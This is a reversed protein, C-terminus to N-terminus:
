ECIGSSFSGKADIWVEVRRDVRREHENDADAELLLPTHAGFSCVDVKHHGVVEEKALFDRVDKARNMALKRNFASDGGASDSFGILVIDKGRYEPHHNLLYDLQKKHIHGEHDMNHKGTEFHFNIPTKVLQKMVNYYKDDLDHEKLISRRERVEENMETNTVINMAILKTTRSIWEQTSEKDLFTRFEDTLFKRFDSSLQASNPRTYIYLEDYLDYEESFIKSATPYVLHGSENLALLKVNSTVHENSVFGIANPHNAVSEELKEHSKFSTHSKIVLDHGNKTLDHVFEHYIGSTEDMTYLAIEGRKGSGIIESWNTIDGHFIKRIQHSTLFDINNSKNVVVAIADFAFADEYKNSENKIDFDFGRAISSDMEGYSTAIDCTKNRLDTYGHFTGDAKIEVSYKQGDKTGFINQKLDHEKEGHVDSYNQEELFKQVLKPMIEHNLMNSGCIKLIPTLTPIQIPTIKVQPVPDKKSVAIKVPKVPTIDVVPITPQTPIKPEEMFLKIAIVVGVLAVIAGLIIPLYRKFNNDKKGLLDQIEQSISVSIWPKSQMDKLSAIAGKTDSSNYLIERLNSIMEKQEELSLTDEMLRSNIDCLENSSMPSSPEAPLPTPMDVIKEKRGHLNKSLLKIWNAENEILKLKYNLINRARLEGPIVEHIVNKSILIPLIPKKLDKAYNWEKTCAISKLSKESMMFIFIDAERIKLLIEKWWKVGTKLEQDYWVEFGLTELNDVIKKVKQRDDSKYSIFIKKGM